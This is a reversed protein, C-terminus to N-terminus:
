STRAARRRKRAAFGGIAALGTAFLTISAPEPTSTVRPGDPIAASAYLAAVQAATLQSSTLAVDAISGDFYRNSFANSQGIYFPASDFSHGGPVSTAALAGNIYISRETGATFTAALFIWHNLDTATLISTATSNGGETYFHIENDTNIQLDFDNGVQSEGAISFIRNLTSPLSSLNIWALISGSNGIQGQLPTTGGATAYATGSAGNNLLLASGNPVGTAPGVTAGNQLIGTYGNVVSNAQASQTFTYYGLLGPLAAVTSNYQANARASSVSLLALAAAWLPKRLAGPRIRNPM